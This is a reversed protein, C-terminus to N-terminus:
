KIRFNPYIEMWCQGVTITDTYTGDCIFSLEARVQKTKCKWGRKAEHPWKGAFTATRAEVMRLSAPFENSLEEDQAEIAAVTAWGCNPSHKLHEKM